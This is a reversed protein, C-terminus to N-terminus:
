CGTSMTDLTNSCLDRRPVLCSWSRNLFFYKKKQIYTGCDSVCVSCQCFSWRECRPSFCTHKYIELTPRGLLPLLHMWFIWSYVPLSFSHILSVSTSTWNQACKRFCENLLINDKQLLYKLLSQNIILM